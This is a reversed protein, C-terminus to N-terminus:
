SKRYHALVVLAHLCVLVGNQVIFKALEKLGNILIFNAVETQLHEDISEPNLTFIPQLTIASSKNCVFYTIVYM